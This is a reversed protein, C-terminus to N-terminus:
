AGDGDEGRAAELAALAWPPPPEALRYFHALAGRVPETRVLEIVELEVLTKVHYSFSGLSLDLDRCLNTVSMEPQGHLARLARRRVPHGLASIMQTTSAGM